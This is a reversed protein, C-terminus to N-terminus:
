KKVFGKPCKAGKKVFKITKGKVCKQKSATVALTGFLTSMSGLSPIISLLELLERQERAQRLAGAEREAQNNTSVAPAANVTLAYSATM